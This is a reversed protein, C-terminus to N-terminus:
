RRPEGSEGHNATSDVDQSGLRSMLIMQGCVALTSFFALYGWDRWLALGLLSPPILVALMWGRNARLVRIRWWLSVLLPPILVAFLVLHLFHRDTLRNKSLLCLNFLLIVPAMDHAKFHKRQNKDGIPAVLEAM